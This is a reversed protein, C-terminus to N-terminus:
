FEVTAGPLAGQQTDRIFGSIQGSDFQAHAPTSFAAVLFLLALARM